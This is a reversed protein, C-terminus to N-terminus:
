KKLHGVMFWPEGHLVLILCHPLSSPQLHNLGWRMDWSGHWPPISQSLSMFFFFLLVCFSVLLWNEKHKGFFPSHSAEKEHICSHLSTNCPSISFSYVFVQRDMTWGVLLWLWALGLWCVLSNLFFLLFFHGMSFQDLEWSEMKVGDMRQDNMTWSTWNVFVRKLEPLFGKGKRQLWGLFFFFFFFFLLVSCVVLQHPRRLFPFHFHVMNATSSSVCLIPEFGISHICQMYDHPM